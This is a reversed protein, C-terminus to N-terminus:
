NKRWLENLGPAMNLMNIGRINICYLPIITHHISFVAQIFTLLNKMAPEYFIIAAIFWDSNMNAIKILVTINQRLIRKYTKLYIKQSKSINIKLAGKEVLM